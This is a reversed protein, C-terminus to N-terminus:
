DLLDYDDDAPRGARRLTEIIREASRLLTAATEAVEPPVSERRDLIALCLAAVRQAFSTIFDSM